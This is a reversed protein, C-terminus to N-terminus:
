PKRVLACSVVWGPVGTSCRVEISARRFVTTGQLVGDVGDASWRILLDEFTLREKVLPFLAKFAAEKVSFLAAVAVRPDLGPPVDPATRLAGVRLLDGPEAAEIDVGVGDFAGFQALVAVVKTGKHSVSGLVGSPWAREGSVRRSPEVAPLGASRLLDTLCTRTALSRVRRLEDVRDDRSIRALPPLSRAFCGGCM